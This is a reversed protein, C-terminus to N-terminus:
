SVGELVNADSRFQEAPYDVGTWTQSADLGDVTTNGHVDHLTSSSRSSPSSRTPPPGGFMGSHMASGLAELTIDVSTM